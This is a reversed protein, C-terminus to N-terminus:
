PKKAASWTSNGRGRIRTGGSYAADGSGNPDISLSADLYNEKDVIPAGGATDIRVVPLTLDAYFFKAGSSWESTTGDPAVHRVRAWHFSGTTLGTTVEISPETTTTSTWTTVGSRRWEWEYTSGTPGEIVWALDVSTEGHRATPAPLSTTGPGPDGHSGGGSDPACSMTVLSLAVAATVTVVSLRRGGWRSARTGVISM